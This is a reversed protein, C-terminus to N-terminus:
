TIQAGTQVLSEGVESDYMPVTLGPKGAPGM